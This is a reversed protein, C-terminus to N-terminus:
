PAAKTRDREAEGREPIVWLTVLRAAHGVALAVLLAMYGHATAYTPRSITVAAWMANAAYCALACGWVWRNLTRGLPRSGQNYRALLWWGVFGLMVAGLIPESLRDLLDATV